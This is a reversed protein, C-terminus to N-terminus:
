DTYDPLLNDISLKNIVNYNHLKDQETQAYAIINDVSPAYSSVVFLKNGIRRTSIVHGDIKFQQTLKPATNQSVDYFSLAFEQKYPHWIDIKTLSNVVSIQSIVSLNNDQLYLGSINHYQENINLKIDFQHSMSADDERSLIRVYDQSPSLQDDNTNEYYHRAAIYLESGNYKIRDSENVGLEQTITNSFSGDSSASSADNSKSELSYDVQNGPDLGLFIGNRYYRAFETDNQSTLPALSATMANLTPVSSQQLENNDGCGSITLLLPLALLTLRKM